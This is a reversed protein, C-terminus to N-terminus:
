IYMMQSKDYLKINLKNNEKTRILSEHYLKITGSKMYANVISQWKAKVNSCGYAEILNSQQVSLFSDEISIEDVQCAICKSNYLYLIECYHVYLKCKSAIIKFGDEMHVISDFAYLYKVDWVKVNCNICHVSGSIIVANGNEISCNYKTYCICECNEYKTGSKTIICVKGEVVKDLSYGLEYLEKEHIYLFRPTLKGRLIIYAMKYKDKLDEEECLSILFCDLKRKLAKQLTNM